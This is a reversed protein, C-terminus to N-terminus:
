NHAQHGRRNLRAAANFVPTRFSSKPRTFAGRMRQLKKRRRTAPRTPSAWFLGQRERADRMGLPWCNRDVRALMM